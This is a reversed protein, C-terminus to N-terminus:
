GRERKRVGARNRRLTDREPRTQALSFCGRKRERWFLKRERGRKSQEKKDRRQLIEKERGCKTEGERAHSAATSSCM